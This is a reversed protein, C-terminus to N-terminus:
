DLIDLSSIDLVPGEDMNPKFSIDSINIRVTPKFNLKDDKNAKKKPM